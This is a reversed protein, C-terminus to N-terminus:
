GDDDVIRFEVIPHVQTHTHSHPSAMRCVRSNRSRACSKQLTKRIGSKLTCASWKEFQESALTHTHTQRFLCIHCIFSSAFLSIRLPAHCRCSPPPAEAMSCADLKFKGENDNARLAAYYTMYTLCFFLFSKSRHFKATVTVVVVGGDGGDNGHENRSIDM